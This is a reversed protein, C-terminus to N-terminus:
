RNSGPHLNGWQWVDAQCAFRYASAAVQLAEKRMQEPTGNKDKIVEWLEDLEELIVSYGEHPTNFEGFEEEGKVAEQLVDQFSVTM